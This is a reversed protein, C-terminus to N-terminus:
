PFHSKQFATANASTPPMVMVFIAAMRDAVCMSCAFIAIESNTAAVHPPRLLGTAARIACCPIACGLLAYCVGDPCPLAPCPLAPCPLAPCPVAPCLLACCLVACPILEVSLHYTAVYKSLAAQLDDATMIGRGELGRDHAAELVCDTIHQYRAVCKDLHQHRLLEMFPGQLRSGGNLCNREAHSMCPASLLPTEPLLCTAYGPSSQAQM